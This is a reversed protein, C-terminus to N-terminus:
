FHIVTIHSFVYLNISNWSKEMYEYNHMKWSKELGPFVNEFNWSKELNEMVAPVRHVDIDHM